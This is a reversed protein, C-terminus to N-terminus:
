VEQKGVWLRALLLYLVGFGFLAAYIDLFAGPGLGKTIVGLSLTQFWSSPFAQGTLWPIGTMTAVPYLLGSFNMAPILTILGSAFTAAVQSRFFASILLGLATAAWVFGLAGAALALFPGRVPVGLALVCTAALVLFNLFALGLYPMQKGLLFQGISAPSAYLNTISGLEKERVVGLSTLMTPIIFLALMLVGPTIAYISKFSPNYNFRPELTLPQRPAWAPDLGQVTQLRQTGYGLLVGTAYGQITQSFFPLAGDVSLGLEPRHGALLDRGYHPPVELVLSAAHSQLVAQVQEPRDLRAVEQFYRSGQFHALLERSEVTGDQDMVAFAIREVDFSISWASVVLLILPGLQSFTLRIPDRRLEMGERRAFAWLTAWAQRVSGLRGRAAARAQLAPPTPVPSAVTAPERASDQAGQLVRVFADELNDAGQQACLAEPQGVALVRGRHMLSIRDCRQAENMFHTSVFITVREERSLRVLHGWFMDRAAPDVGSTPEDLILVEPGHLCACALQLRQRIGLSLAAPRADAQALLDFQRLSAEVRQAQEARPLHFLRAHLLLNQRVSLEEYLSFAQSMYGVRSRVAMDSAQVPRGLLRASGSSVGLLGTLMKMTTTKGCGNSGLFGFIEGREIRFSVDDVAVFDGFRRTLGHAEIAPAEGRSQFPPM